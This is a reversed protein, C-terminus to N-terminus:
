ALARKHMYSLVIIKNKGRELCLGYCFGNVWLVRDLLQGQEYSIKRKWVAKWCAGKGKLTDKEYSVLIEWGITSGHRNQRNIGKHFEIM